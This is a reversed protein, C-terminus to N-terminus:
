GTLYSGIIDLINERDSSSVGLFPRAPIDGWLHPFQATTGGFQHMAAYVKPSGISVSSSDEVQYSITKQLSKTEGTLPKKSESRKTGAKSLSGDKKRSGKFAGLYNELTVPSNSAWPTGDPSTATSFRQKTSEVMDEGIELFAPRLNKGRAVLQALVDRVQRDDFKVTIM